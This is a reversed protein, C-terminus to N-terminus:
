SAEKPCTIPVAPLAPLESPWVHEVECYAGKLAELTATLDGGAELASAWAGHAVRFGEWAQWVPAWRERVSTLGLEAEARDKSREIVGDGEAKYAALLMPLSANAGSAIGDAVAAQTQRQSAGCGFWVLAILVYALWRM